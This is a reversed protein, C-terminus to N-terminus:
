VCLVNCQVHMNKCGAGYISQPHSLYTVFRWQLRVFEFLATCSYLVPVHTAFLAMSEVHKSSEGLIPHCVCKESFRGFM